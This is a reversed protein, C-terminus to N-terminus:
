PIFLSIILKNFSFEFAISTLIIFVQVQVDITLHIEVSLTAKFGRIIKLALLM